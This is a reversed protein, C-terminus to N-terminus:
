ALGAERVYADPDTFFSKFEEDLFRGSPDRHLQAFREDHDSSGFLNINQPGMYSKIQPTPPTQQAVWAAAAEADTYNGTEKMRAVMKDFGEDTLNFRNRANDLATQLNAAQSNEAAAKREAEREDQMEKLKAELKQNAENLATFQPELHDEPLVVDPYKEKAKKRIQAGLDRDNWLDGLLERARQAALESATPAAPESM